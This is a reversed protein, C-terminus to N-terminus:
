EECEQQQGRQGQGAVCFGAPTSLFCWLTLAGVIGKHPRKAGPVPVELSSNSCRGAAPARGQTVPFQCYQIRQRDARQGKCNLLKQSCIGQHLTGQELDIPSHENGDMQLADM